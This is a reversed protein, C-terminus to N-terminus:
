SFLILTKIKNMVKDQDTLDLKVLPLKITQHDNESDSSSKSVLMSNSDHLMSVHYGSALYISERDLKINSVTRDLISLELDAGHASSAHCQRCDGQVYFYFYPKINKIDAKSPWLPPDTPQRETVEIKFSNDLCNIDYQVNYKHRQNEYSCWLQLSDVEKSAFSLSFVASPGVKVEAQRCDTKCIPCFLCYDWLEQITNFIKM